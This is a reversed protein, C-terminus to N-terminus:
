WLDSMWIEIMAVIATIAMKREEEEDVEGARAKGKLRNEIMATATSYYGLAEEPGEATQALYLYPSPTEPNTPAHPPFLQLLHARGRDVDGGELEAVGALERAEANSPELELARDLFKIALDFNSQALLVNAKDALNAIQLYVSPSSAGILSPVDTSSSTSPAKKTVKASRGTKKSRAM